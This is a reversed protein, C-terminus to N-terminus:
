PDAAPLLVRPINASPDPKDVRLLYVYAQSVLPVAVFELLPDHLPDAAPFLVLPM